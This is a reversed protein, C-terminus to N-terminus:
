PRRRRPPWQRPRSCARATRRPRRLPSSTVDHGSSHPFEVDEGYPAPHPAVRPGPHSVCRSTSGFCIASSSRPFPTSDTRLSPSRRGDVTLDASFRRGVGRSVEGAAVDLAGESCRRALVVTILGAYLCRPCRSVLFLRAGGGVRRQRGKRRPAARGQRVVCRSGVRPGSESRGSARIFDYTETNAGFSARRPPRVARRPPGSLRIIGIRSRKCGSMDAQSNTRVYWDIGYQYAHRV